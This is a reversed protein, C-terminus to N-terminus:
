VSLTGNIKSSMIVPTTWKDNILISEYLDGGVLNKNTRFLFLTNGDPSLGVCADNLATNIDGEVELAESWLFGSETNNSYYVDEFPRGLPDKEEGNDRRSTFLLLEENSSILPVYEDDATNITKGM